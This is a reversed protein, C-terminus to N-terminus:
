SSSREGLTLKAQLTQNGRLVKLTVTEGAVHELLLSVLSNRDDVTRDNLATIIDGTQLGAQAAPTGDIVAEIVAGETVTINMKNALQPNLAQFRIGLLPLRADGTEILNRVVSRATNSPIAFGLGEADAFDGRVVMANVGIVKGELNILPGGSNGQNIAADTQLLGAMPGLQRNFGSLMGGTVTNRYEGLASGIAIVPAGLPLTSSDGWDLTAPVTGEIKLVALDFEPSAGVLQAPTNGGKAFVVEIKQAEEIVHNNTVVYGDPGIIFGSGSGGSSGAPGGQTIITVVAPLARNVAAITASPQAETPATSAAALTYSAAPNSTGRSALAYGVAGGIVSGALVGGALVLALTLWVTFNSRHAM